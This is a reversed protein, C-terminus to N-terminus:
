IPRVTQESFKELFKQSLFTVGQLLLCERFYKEGFFQKFFHGGGLFTLFGNDLDSRQLLCRSFIKGM